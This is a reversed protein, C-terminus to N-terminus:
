KLNRVETSNLSPVGAAKARVLDLHKHRKRCIEQEYGGGEVKSGSTLVEFFFGFTSATLLAFVFDVTLAKTRYFIVCFIASM